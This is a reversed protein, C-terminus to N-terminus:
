QREELRQRFYPLHSKGRALSWWGPQTPQGSRYQRQSELGEGRRRRHLERRGLEGGESTWRIGVREREEKRWGCVGHEDPEPHKGDRGGRRGASEHQETGGIESGTSPEQEEYRVSPLVLRLAQLRHLHRHARRRHRRSRHSRNPLLSQGLRRRFLHQHCQPHNPHRRHHRSPLHQNKLLLLGRRLNRSPSLSPHLPHRDANPEAPPSIQIMQRSM